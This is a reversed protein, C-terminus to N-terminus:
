KSKKNISKKNFLFYTSIKYIYVTILFTLFPCIIMLIWAYDIFFVVVVMQVISYILLSIFDYLFRQKEITTFKTAEKTEKEIKKIEEKIKNEVKELKVNSFNPSGYSVKEFYSHGYSGITRKEKEIQTLRNNYEELREMLMKNTYSQTSRNSYKFKFMLFHIIIETFQSILITIFLLYITGIFDNFIYSYYPFFCNIFSFLVVYKFFINPFLILIGVNLKVIFLINGITRYIFLITMVIFFLSNFYQLSLFMYVIAYCINDVIKDVRHREPIHKYKDPYFFYDLGDMVFVIIIGIFLNIFVVFTTFIRFLEFIAGVPNESIFDVLGFTELLKMNYIKVYMYYEFLFFFAMFLVVAIAIVLGRYVGSIFYISLLSIALTLFVIMALIISIQKNEKLYDMFQFRKM